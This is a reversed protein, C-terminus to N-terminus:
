ESKKNASNNLYVNGVYMRLIGGIFDSNEYFYGNKM